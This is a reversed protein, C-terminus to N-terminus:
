AMDFQKRLIKIFYRIRNLNASPICEVRIHTLTVFTGDDPPIEISKWHAQLQSFPSFESQCHCVLHRNTQRRVDSTQFCMRDVGVARMPKWNIYDAHHACVCMSRVSKCGIDWGTRRLLRTEQEKKQRNTSHKSKRKTKILLQFLIRVFTRCMFRGSSQRSTSVENRQQLTTRKPQCGSVPCDRMATAMCLPYIDNFWNLILWVPWKVNRLDCRRGAHVCACGVYVCM